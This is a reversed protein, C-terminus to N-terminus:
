DFVACTAAITGPRERHLRPTRSGFVANAARACSLAILDPIIISSVCFTLGAVLFWANLKISLLLVDPGKEGALGFLRTHNHVDGAARFAQTTKVAVQLVGWKSPTRERTEGEAAGQQPTPCHILGWRHTREYEEVVGEDYLAPPGYRVKGEAEILRPRLLRKIEVMSYFNYIAWCVGVAEVVVVVVAFVSNSMFAGATHGEVDDAPAEAAIKIQEFIALPVALMIWYFPSIEVMEQLNAGAVYDLYAVPHFNNSLSHEQIFRRTFLYTDSGRYPDHMTVALRMRAFPLWMHSGNTMEVGSAIPLELLHNRTRIAIGPIAIGTARSRFASTAQYSYRALKGSKSAIRASLTKLSVSLSKATM